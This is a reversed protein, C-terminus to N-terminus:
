FFKETKGKRYLDWLKNNHIEYTELFVSPSTIGLSYLGFHEYLDIFIDKANETFGWLTKDLDFFMHKYKHM